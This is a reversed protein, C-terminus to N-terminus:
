CQFKSSKGVRPSHFKSRLFQATFLTGLDAFIRSVKWMEKVIELVKITTAHNEFARRGQSRRFLVASQFPFFSFSLFFLLFFRPFNRPFASFSFSWLFVKQPVKKTHLDWGQARTNVKVQTVEIGRLFLDFLQTFTITGSLLAGSLGPPPRVPRFGSPPSVPDDAGSGPSLLLSFFCSPYTVPFPSNKPM